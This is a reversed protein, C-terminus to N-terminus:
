LINHWLLVAQPVLIHACLSSIPRKISSTILSKFYENVQSIHIWIIQEVEVACM